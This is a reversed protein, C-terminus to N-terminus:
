IIIWWWYNGNKKNKGKVKNLTTQALVIQFRNFQKMKNKTEKCPEFFM